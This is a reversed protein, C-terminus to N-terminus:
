NQNLFLPQIKIYISFLKTENIKKFKNKKYYYFPKKQCSIICDIVHNKDNINKTLNNVNIPVGMKQTTSFIDYYFLYEWMDTGIEIGTKGEYKNLYHRALKFDKEYSLYNACYKKFRPDNLHITSNSILPRTPNLFMILSSHGLIIFLIFLVKKSNFNIKKFSYDFIVATFFPTMLFIPTQLRTHWPQWKLLLSFILFEIIPFLFLLWIYAHIKNRRILFIIAAVVFLILQYFNSVNDEHHQWYELKFSLSNFNTAVDDIPIGLVLHMKEIVQNTLSSFPPIALHNGINKSTTLISQRIGITENFLRDDNKGLVDGSLSYNRTYFGCNIILILLPIFFLKILSLLKKYKILVM